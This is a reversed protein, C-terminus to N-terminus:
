VLEAVNDSGHTNSSQMRRNTKKAVSGAPFWQNVVNRYNTLATAITMTMPIMSMQM